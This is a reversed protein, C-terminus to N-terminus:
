ILRLADNTVGVAYYSLMVSHESDLM